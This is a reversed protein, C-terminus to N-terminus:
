YKESRLDQIKNELLWKKFLDKDKATHHIVTGCNLMITFIDGAAIFKSLKSAPYDFDPFYNIELTKKM